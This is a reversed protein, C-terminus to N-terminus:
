PTPAPGAVRRRRAWLSGPGDASPRDQLEGLHDLWCARHALQPHLRDWVAPRARWDDDARLMRSEGVASLKSLALYARAWSGNPVCLPKNRDLHQRGRIQINHAGAHWTPRGLTSSRSHALARLPVDPPSGVSNAAPIRGTSRASAMQSARWRASKATPERDDTLAGARPRLWCQSTWCHRSHTISPSARGAVLQIRASATPASPGSVATQFYLLILASNLSGGLSYLATSTAGLLHYRLSRRSDGGRCTRRSSSTAPVPGGHPPASPPARGTSRTM